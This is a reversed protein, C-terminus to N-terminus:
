YACDPYSIRNSNLLVILILHCQIDISLSVISWLVRLIWTGRFSLCSYWTLVVSSWLSWYTSMLSASMIIQCSEKAYSNVNSCYHMWLFFFETSCNLFYPKEPLIHSIFDALFTIIASQTQILCKVGGHRPVWCAEFNTKISEKLRAIGAQFWFHYNM